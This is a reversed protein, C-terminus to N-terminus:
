WEPDIKTFILYPNDNKDIEKEFAVLSPNKQKLSSWESGKKKKNSIYEVLSTSQQFWVLTDGKIQIPRRMMPGLGIDDKLKINSTHLMKNEKNSAFVYNHNRKYRYTFFSFDEAEYYNSINNAYEELLKIREIVNEKEEFFSEPLEKEGFDIKKIKKFKEKDYSYIIYDSPATFFVKDNFVSFNTPLNYHYDILDPDIDISEERINFDNDTILMNHSDDMSNTLVNNMFILYGSEIKKFRSLRHKFTKEEIYEGNNSNYYIFKSGGTDYIIIQNNKLDVDFDNPSMFEGPGRGYNSIDFLLRGEENYVYLALSQEADLVYIKNNKLLVKEIQGIYNGGEESLKLYKVNSIISSTNVFETKEPNIETAEIKSGKKKKETDSCGFILFFTLLTLIIKDM